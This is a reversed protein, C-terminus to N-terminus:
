HMRNTIAFGSLDEAVFDFNSLLEETSVSLGPSPPPEEVKPKKAPPLVSYQNTKEELTNTCDCQSRTCNCATGCYFGAKRCPCYNKHCCFGNPSRVCKCPNLNKREKHPIRIAGHSDIISM